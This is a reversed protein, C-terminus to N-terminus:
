ECINQTYETPTIGLNEKFVRSFYRVDYYGCMIGIDTISLGLQKQQSLLQVAYKIRIDTLFENPTMGTIAYFRRRIYDKSYGTALLADTVHFEPDNFSLTLTHIVQDVISDSTKKHYWEGILQLAIHYMSDLIVDNEKAHLFRTLMMSLLKEMTKDADDMLIIPEHVDNTTHNPSLYLTDTQLYIDHFGMESEKRHPMNPPVIHITGPKFSYENQGITAIGEGEMNLILEYNEHSHSDYYTFTKPSTGVLFLAM